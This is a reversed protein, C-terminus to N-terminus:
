YIWFVWFINDQFCIVNYCVIESTKMFNIEPGLISFSVSARIGKFLLFLLLLHALFTFVNKLNTNFIMCIFSSYVEFRSQFYIFLLCSFLDPKFPSLMKCHDKKIVVSQLSLNQFMICFM